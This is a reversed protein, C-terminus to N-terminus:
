QMREFITRFVQNSDKDGIIMSSVWKFGYDREVIQCFEVSPSREGEITIRYCDKDLFSKLLNEGNVSNGTYEKTSDGNLHKITKKSM